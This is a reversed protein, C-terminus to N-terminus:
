RPSRLAYPGSRSASALALFGWGAAALLSTSWQALGLPSDFSTRLPRSVDLFATIARGSGTSEGAVAPLVWCLLGLLAPVLPAPGRDAIRSLSLGAAILWCLGIALACLSQEMRFTGFQWSRGLHATIILGAAPLTSALALALAETLLRGLPGHQRDTLPRFAIVSRLGIATSALASMFAVEYTASLEHLGSTTLGLPLLFRVILACAAAILVTALYLPDRLQHRLLAGSIRLSIM